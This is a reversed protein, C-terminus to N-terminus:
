WSLQFRESVDYSLNGVFIKYGTKEGGESEGKSRERDGGSTTERDRSRSRSRERRSGEETTHQDVSDSRQRTDQTSM